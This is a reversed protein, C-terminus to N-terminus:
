PLHEQRTRWVLRGVVAASATAFLHKITHSSIWGVANLMEENRLEAAKALAYLAIATGFAFRDARPAGHLAQWLPILLLPLGQLLLYPRLDAQGSQETFYWWAV